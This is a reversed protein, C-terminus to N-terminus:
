NISIASRCPNERRFKGCIKLVGKGLFVELVNSRNNHYTPFTNFLAIVYKVVFKM